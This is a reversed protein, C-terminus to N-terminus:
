GWQKGELLKIAEEMAFDNGLHKFIKRVLELDKRFNISLRIKPRKGKYPLIVSSWDNNRSNIMYATVHEREASKEYSEKLVKYSFVEVDFGDPYSPISDHTNSVYDHNRSLFHSIVMDIIKPDIMPCDSTIRVIVDAPNEQLTWYFRSLVDEESGRFYKVGMELALECIPDDREWRTTAVIIDDVLKAKKVRNIVHWLMPKSNIELLVKDPLRTSGMRAQIIAVIKRSIMM